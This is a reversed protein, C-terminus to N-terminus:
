PTLNQPNIWAGDSKEITQHGDAWVINATQGHRFQLRSLFEAASSASINLPNAGGPIVEALFVKTAPSSVAAWRLNSGSPLLFNANMGYGKARRQTEKSGDPCWFLPEYEWAWGGQPRQGKAFGLQQHLQETWFIALGVRPESASPLSGSNDAGFLRIGQYISRLNGACKVAGARERL